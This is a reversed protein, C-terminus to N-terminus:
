HHIEKVENLKDVNKLLTVRIEHNEDKLLNLFIPFIFENTKSKGIFPCLKLLSTALSAVFLNLSGRVHVVPDTEIKKLQKLIKDFAEEKYM